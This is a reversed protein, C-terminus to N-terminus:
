QKIWNSLFSLKLITLCTANDLFLLIISAFIDILVSKCKSLKDYVQFVMARGNGSWGTGLNSHYSSTIVELVRFMINLDVHLEATLLIHLKGCGLSQTLGFHVQHPIAKAFKHTSKSM